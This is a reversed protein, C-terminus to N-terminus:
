QWSELERSNEAVMRNVIELYKKKIAVYDSVQYKIPEHPGELFALREEGIKVLLNIRYLVINGSKKRPDNCQSCQLHCNDEHFRLANRTAGISRYHGAEAKGFTISQCSICPQGKDRIRIFQNFYKQALNRQTKKDHLKFEARDHALEKAAKKVKKQKDYDLSCKWGCVIQLSSRPQFTERCFRCKKPKLPKVKM